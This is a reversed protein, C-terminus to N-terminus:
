KGSILCDRMETLIEALLTSAQPKFTAAARLHCATVGQPEALRAYFERVMGAIM